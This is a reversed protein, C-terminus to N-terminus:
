ENEIPNIKIIKGPNGVVTAGDPVDRIIVAGAGITAWKGIKINPIIVAGAGVHTGEGISVNGSLTVNPSIHAFNDIFCEHDISAATNIICHKGIQSDVNIIAGPMIVTGEGIKVTEDIIASPHIATTFTVNKLKKALKKRTHNNGVSIIFNNKEDGNYKEVKYGLIEFPARDDYIKSIHKGQAELIKIIVKGHGSAGYLKM